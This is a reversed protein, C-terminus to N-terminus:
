AFIALPLLQVGPEEVVPDSVEISLDSQNRFAGVIERSLEPGAVGLATRRTMNIFDGNTLVRTVKALVKFRGGLLYEESSSHLFERSLTLVARMGEPGDLVLDRVGARDLDARMTLYLRVDEESLPVEDDQQDSQQSQEENQQMQRLSQNGRQKNRRQKHTGSPKADLNIGMYPAFREVFDLVEQLPNGKIEGAVEVLDGTELGQLSAADALQVVADDAELRARLLNFLSAETHRRVTRVENSTSDTGADKYRGSADVGFLSVLAPLKLGISAEREKSSEAGEVMRTEDEFSVGGEVAALFSVMMPVDLYIPHVLGSATLRDRQPPKDDRRAMALVIRGPATVVRHKCRV